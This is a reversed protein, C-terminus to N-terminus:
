LSEVNIMCSKRSLRVKHVDSICSASPPRSPPSMFTSSASYLPHHMRPNPHKKRRRLFSNLPDSEQFNHTQLFTADYNSVGLISVLGDAEVMKRAFSFKLLEILMNTLEGRPNLCYMLSKEYSCDKRSRRMKKDDESTYLQDNGIDFPPKTVANCDVPKKKGLAKFRTVICM